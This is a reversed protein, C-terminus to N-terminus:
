FTIALTLAKLSFIHGHYKVKAKVPPRSRPVVSSKKGCPICLHFIFATDSVKCFNHGIYLNKKKKRVFQYVSLCVPCFSYAESRDIRPCLFLYLNGM